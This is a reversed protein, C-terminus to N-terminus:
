LSSPRRGAYRRRAHVDARLRSATALHRIPIMGAIHRMPIVGAFAVCSGVVVFAKLALEDLLLEDLGLCVTGSHAESFHVDTESVSEEGHPQDQADDETETDDHDDRGFEVDVAASALSEQSLKRTDRKCWGHWSPHGCKNAPRVKETEKKEDDDDAGTQLDKSVV